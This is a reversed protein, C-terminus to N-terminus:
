KITMEHIIWKSCLKDFVGSEFLDSRKKQLPQSSEKVWGELYYFKRLDNSARILINKFRLNDEWVHIRLHLVRACLCLARSCVALSFKSSSSSSRLQLFSASSPGAVTVLHTARRLLLQSVRFGLCLFTTRKRKGRPVLLGTTNDSLALHTQARHSFDPCM